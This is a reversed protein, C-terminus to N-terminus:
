RTFLSGRWKAKSGRRVLAELDCSVASSIANMALISDEHEQAAAVDLVITAGSQFGFTVFGSTQSKQVAAVLEAMSDVEVGDVTSLVAPALEADDYGDNVGSAVLIRQLVLLQQGPRSKEGAACALRIALTSEDDYSNVDLGDVLPMSLPAFVCGGFIFYSPFADVGHFCPVLRPIADLLVAETRLGAGPRWLQVDVISGLPKRTYLHEYDVRPKPRTKKKKSVAGIAEPLAITGDHAIATGDISLLVDGVLAVTFLPSLKAISALRVGKDDELGLSRRLGEHELRQTRIGLNSVGPIVHPPNAGKRELASVAAFFLRVVPAPIVYGINDLDEAVEKCFAVGVVAGRDDFVPGGSNGANIAADIQIVLLPEVVAFTSYRLTDIRSVVGKTVSISEGGQPYGVVTTSEGIAPLADAMDCAAPDEWFADSEVSLLALDMDACVALLTAEYKRADGERRVRISCANIVVHANTVIQRGHAVWGSGTYEAQAEVQWPLSYNVSSEVAFIRVIARFSSSVGDDSEDDAADADEEAAADPAPEPQLSAAQSAAAGGDAVQNRSAAPGGAKEWDAKTQCGGM